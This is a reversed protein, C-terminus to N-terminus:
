KPRRNARKGRDRNSLSIKAHPTENPVGKPVTVRGPMRATIITITNPLVFPRFRWSLAVVPGHEAYSMVFPIDTNDFTFGDLENTGNSDPFITWLGSSAWFCLLSRHEDADLVFGDADGATYRRPTARGFRTILEAPLM